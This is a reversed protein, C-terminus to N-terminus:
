HKMLLTTKAKQNTSKQSCTAKAKKSPEPKKDRDKYYHTNDWDFELKTERPDNTKVLYTNLKSLLAEFVPKYEDVQSLNNM